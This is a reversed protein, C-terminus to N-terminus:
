HEYIDRRFGVAEILVTKEVEDVKYIIRYVSVRLRRYGSYEYRMAEGYQLPATTLRETIARSVLERASKPLFPLDEKSVRKAYVIRYM